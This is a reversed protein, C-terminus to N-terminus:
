GDFVSNLVRIDFTEKAKYFSPHLFGFSQTAETVPRKDIDVKRLM